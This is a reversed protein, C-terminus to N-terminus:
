KGTRPLKKNKIEIEKEYLKTTYNDEDWVMYTKNYGEIKTKNTFIDENNVDSNIRVFIYPNIVSEFGVPATGFDAKFETVYEDAELEINNFDIYNNVKTNLKDKLLRYDNKNTKFYISYDLDQNYTGTILKTIRTHDTPLYDYWTFKDLPVNGTNKIKFDYRIEQNATTQVIGTKEIDVSPKESENTIEVNVIEKHEKIEASFENTNLLFWEGASVEKIYYTGKDILRTIATGEEGTIVEDILIYNSNYIEFKVNPIPTGAKTNNIFNDDENTKIIKIQGKIRENTIDLKSIIDTEVNVKIIEENLIHMNDTKTEKLRYEGIPIRSTIAYGESNTCVTEVVEDNSNIVEFQVEELKYEHNESDVKYVEIQGKLKENKITIESTENWKIDASYKEDNLKYIKNTKLEKIEAIGTRINEIYAIGDEGSVTKYKYGDQDTVEFEVNAIPQNENDLDVKYIKLNGKKHENEFQINKIKNEEVTVTKIEDNLIYEENTELSVEKIKYNGIPIRSTVAEGNENTKITEIVHNNKDIIQFEVNSLKTENYDKDVKIIKIQGKKKENEVKVEMTENWNVIVNQDIALNYEKKTLTERLTYNGTNINKVEAIGNVDTVLHNVIRGKYDYLDFEVAGLTVDNDDKDVKVIKLNGKKHSNTLGVTKIQNYNLDISVPTTDLIYENKTSIETLIIKGQRLNNIEIKGEKNTSFDGINMGNEYKANYVIGELVEGTERDTKTINIKATNTQIKLNVVGGEDSYPDYTVAYNQWNSSPSAGYFIPYTACKAQISVIIDIDNILQNKPIYIKFSESAKFTTKRNGSTDASFAGTPLNAISTITYNSMNVNSTVRFTQSYYNGEEIFGGNKNIHLTATAPTETGYRGENVMREMANVIRNGRDDAGRYFSRVDRDYLISYVAQKTAVFADYKDHVGLQEPTKYPYGNKIVRYIRADNLIDTISVTYAELEGVGERERNLCYAPYEVGDKIHAVYTTTVYYWSGSNNYQLHNECRGLNQITANSIAVAQVINSFSSLAILFLLFITLMKKNKTKKM